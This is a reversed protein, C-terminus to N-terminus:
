INQYDGAKLIIQIILLQVFCEVLIFGILVFSWIGSLGGILIAHRVISGSFLICITHRIWDFLNGELVIAWAYKHNILVNSFDNM